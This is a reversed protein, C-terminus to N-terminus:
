YVELDGPEMIPIRATTTFSYKVLVTIAFLVEGLKRIDDPTKIWSSTKADLKEDHKLRSQLERYQEENLMEIGM